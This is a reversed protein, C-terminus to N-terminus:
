RRSPLPATIVAGNATGPANVAIDATLDGSSV